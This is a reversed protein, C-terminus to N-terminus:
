QGLLRIWGRGQHFDSLSQSMFDVCQALVKRVETLSNCRSYLSFISVAFSKRTHPLNQFICQSTVFWYRQARNRPLKVTSACRQVSIKRVKTLSNHLLVTISKTTLSTCILM